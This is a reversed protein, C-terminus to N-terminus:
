QNSEFAMVSGDGRVERGGRGGGYEREGGVGTSVSEEAEGGAHRPDPAFLIDLSERAMVDFDSTATMLPPHLFRGEPMNDFGVV